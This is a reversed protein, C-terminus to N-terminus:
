EAANTNSFLPIQIVAQSSLFKHIKDESDM